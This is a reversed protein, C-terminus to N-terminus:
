GGKAAAAAARKKESWALMKKRSGFSELPLLNYAYLVIEWLAAYCEPDARCTADLLNNSVVARLFSGPLVGYEKYRNLGERIREPIKNETMKSRGVGM